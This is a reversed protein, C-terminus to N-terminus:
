ETQNQGCRPLLHVSKLKCLYSTIKFSVFKRLFYHLHSGFRMQLTDKTLFYNSSDKHYFYGHLWYEGENELFNKRVVM